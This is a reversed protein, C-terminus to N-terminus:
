KRLHTNLFEFTGMGNIIHGANFHEITTRGGIGLKEYLRRVKAFEYNVWEDLGVGDDHGREVMFPRPAILAAMEAYNFTGGLNWEWIEYEHVFVYSMRMETSACKRVWENFDGSCISLCYDKLVAPIRMASKGGYSLGYFAIRRADTWPQTKLWELIRAHQPIIVSFLSKGLVNLKRQLGRFADGGRYLNHPSFTVYGQEALKLAFARYPKWAASQPDDNLCDAPVGELGHQCVIVPRQEGPPINKPLALWGWAIVDKWVDLVVEYVKVKDTERVLRTQPRAPVDPWPLDGIVEKWFADRKEDAWKEYDALAAPRKQWFGAEREREGASLQRQCWASMESVLRQQRIADYASFDSQKLHTIIKPQGPLGMVLDKLSKTEPNLTLWDNGQVLSRARAAEAAVADPTKRALHGPAAIARVGKDAPPPGDTEPWSWDHIILKRPAILAAVEADGWHRLLGQVNRYLPEEWVRERPGFYGAVHVADIREDLAAAHLALLGGEGMGVVTVPQNPSSQKIWDVAALLTQIELGILHRGQVFSQRYIWERHPVNTKIGLVDSGSFRTDRNVLAPILVSQVCNLLGHAESGSQMGLIAEPTTDADPVVMLWGRPESKPAVYLGEANFGELVRWRVRMVQVDDSEFLLGKDEPSGTVEVGPPLRKDVVGLQRALSARLSAAQRPDFSRQNATDDIQRLLYDDVQRVMKASLDVDETLLTTGPLPEAASLTTSSAAVLLWCSFPKVPLNRLSLLGKILANAQQTKLIM